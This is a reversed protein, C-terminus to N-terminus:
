ETICHAATLIHTPSIISGGCLPQGNRLINVAWPFEGQEAYWGGVIRPAAYSRTGCKSVTNPKQTGQGSYSPDTWAILHFLNYKSNCSTLPLYKKKANILHTSSHNWITSYSAASNTCNAMSLSWPDIEDVKQHLACIRWYDSKPALLCVETEAVFIRWVKSIHM